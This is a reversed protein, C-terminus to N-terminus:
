AIASLSSSQQSGDDPGLGYARVLSMLQQMLKAQTQQETSQTSQTADSSSTSSTDSTETSQKYAMAEKFSVKGDQDTDAKDFNSAIESMFSSRASDTSSTESAMTSLEDKTFGKDNDGPPPGPPPGGAGGPGQMGGRMQSSMAQSSLSDALKQMTDSMEQQTVKGDSDSDLQKFMEDVNSSTSSSVDGLASQLDSKEIYGQGKTDLKSFLDSAMQQVNPRQQPIMMSSGSIGSISM